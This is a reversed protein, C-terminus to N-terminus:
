NIFNVKTSVVKLVVMWVVVWVMMWVVMWVGGVDVGVVWVTVEDGEM